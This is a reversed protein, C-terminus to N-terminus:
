TRSCSKGHVVNQNEGTLYGLYAAILGAVAGIFAIFIASNVKFTMAITGGLAHDHEQINVALFLTADCM